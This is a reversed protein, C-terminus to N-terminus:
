TLLSLTRRPLLSESAKYLSLSFTKAPEGRMPTLFWLFDIGGPMFTVSLPEQWAPTAWACGKL